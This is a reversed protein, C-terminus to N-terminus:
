QNTILYEEALNFKFHPGFNAKVRDAADKLSIFPYLDSQHVLLDTTDLRKGNLTYIMQRTALNLGCGVIDDSGFEADKNTIYPWADAFDSGRVNQGRLIRGKSEPYEVANDSVVTSPFLQEVQLCVRGSFSTAENLKAPASVAVRTVMIAVGSSRPWVQRRRLRMSVTSAMRALIQQM